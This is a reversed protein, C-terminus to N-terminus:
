LAFWDLLWNELASVLLLEGERDLVKCFVSEDRWKFYNEQIKIQVGVRTFFVTQVGVSYRVKKSLFLFISYLLYIFIM